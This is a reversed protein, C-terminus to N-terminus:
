RGEPDDTSADADADVEEAPPTWFGDDARTSAAREGAFLLGNFLARFTGFPQGRWQPRFGFLIVQGDGLKVDLAAAYGRLHEEGLLFGSMLPSGSEHYKALASGEFGETTTFVPSNTVTVNAREPMGAMVPHDTNVIVEMISGSSFFETRDLDGVVNKVPLHLEEIAFLSSSDLCLLTGGARVFADLERVGAAGMGGAYRAPVTGAAAGNIIQGGRIDALVIVDYRDILNGARVDADRLGRFDFDYMELLWRTWGEDMSTNWPRYMGVRTQEIPAGSAPGRRAQLALDNVMRDIEDAAVGAIVYSGDEAVSVRGGAAWARNVARFANNQAPSVWLATGSGTVNGAPPIIGAAIANTDFGVDPPSDFDSGDRHDGGEDLADWAVPDTRVPVLAARQSDTLPSRVEITRVGFQYPLTWGAHDYPLDPPGDPYQRLDPYKQISFMSRAFNAGAQDMPVVWSGAAFTQQDIVTDADLQYVEIDQFAVRRLMEVAAVPDRQDQPIVYAYPPGERYAEIVDRSAQYRNYLIDRRYKAAVDLTSTSTVLMYDVSDRLRWWGGRWLSAHLTGPQLARDAAPFDRVTYFRPTPSGHIGTESFMIVINHFFNIFDIYGPYWADFIEGKHEAGPMGREDLAAAAATGMLNVMRNMLPHIDPYIPEGYPPLWITAPMSATQHHSYLVQPEWHRNIRVATRSEIMNLGYGDRNNDHGIHKQYLRPMRATEFPTGLQEAYWEAVMNQGDPNISPWLLLIVDDLIARAEDGDKETVLDYALQITHQAHATETSHLGGDIAVIVKGDRALERAEEDTMDGPHALRQAVQRHEELRALNEPSSIFAIYWDRGESTRGIKQLQVRDSAADLATFYEISQDYSALKFDDGVRFGLVSEPTPIGAQAPRPAQAAATGACLVGSLTVLLAITRLDALRRPM